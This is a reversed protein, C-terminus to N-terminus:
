KVALKKEGVVRISVSHIGGDLFSNMEGEKTMLLRLVTVGM